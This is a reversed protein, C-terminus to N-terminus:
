PKPNLTFKDMFGVFGLGVYDSECMGHGCVWPFVRTISTPHILSQLIHGPRLTPREVLYGGGWM